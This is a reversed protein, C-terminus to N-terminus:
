EGALFKNEVWFPVGITEIEKKNEKEDEYTYSPWFNNNLCKLYIKIGERYLKRGLALAPLDIFYAGSCYPESKEVVLNVVDFEEGLSIKLGDIALAAQIHYGFNHISRSFADKSADCSTKLDFIAKHKISLYDPRTKLLVGSEPDKWFLSSEAFGNSLMASVTPISYLEEKMLKFQEIKEPKWNEKKFKEPEL